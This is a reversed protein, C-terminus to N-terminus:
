GSTRCRRGRSESPRRRARARRLSSLARRSLRCRGRRPPAARPSRASCVPRASRLGALRKRLIRDLLELARAVRHEARPLVRARLFVAADVVNGVVDARGDVHLLHHEAVGAIARRRADAKRSARCGARFLEVALEQDVRLAFVDDRANARRLRDALEFFHQGLGVLLKALDRRPELLVVFVHLVELERDLVLLEVHQLRAAALARSIRRNHNGRSRASSFITEGFSASSSTSGSASDCSSDGPNSGAFPCLHRHEGLTQRRRGARRRALDHEGGVIGHFPRPLALLHDEDALFRNRIVNVAHVDRLADQRRRAAHRRVRRDDAALHALRGDDAGARQVNGLFVLLERDVALDDFFALVHREVAQLPLDLEPLHRRLGALNELDDVALQIRLFRVDVLAEALHELPGVLHAAEADARVRVQRILGLEGVREARAADAQATGLVHEEAFVPQRDHLAHDERVVRGIPLLRHQLQQRQLPAVEVAHELRHLSRRDRDARDIRRQVLEQRLAFIQHHLDGLEFHGVAVLALQVLLLLQERADFLKVLEVRHQAM